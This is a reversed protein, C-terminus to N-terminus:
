KKHAVFIKTHISFRFVHRSYFDVGSSRQQFIHLYGAEFGLWKLPEYGLAAYIRNQDFVNYVITKGMQFMLEDSLIFKLKSYNKKWLLFEAQLRYRYRFTFTYGSKLEASSANHTFRNEFVNRHYVTVRKFSQQFTVDVAPRLEPIMLSSKSKPNNPFNFFSAYGAGITIGSKFGYRVMLRLVAQSEKAPSDFIRNDAETYISWHSDIQLTNNLRTWTLAQITVQQMTVAANTFQVVSLLLLVVLINQKM